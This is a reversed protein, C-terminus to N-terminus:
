QHSEQRTPHYGEPTLNRALRIGPHNRRDCGRGCGHSEIFCATHCAHAAYVTPCDAGDQRGHCEASGDGHVVITGTCRLTLASRPRTPDAAVWKEEYSKAGYHCQRRTHFRVDDAGLPNLLNPGPFVHTKQRQTIPERCAPCFGDPLEMEAVAAKTAKEAHVAQAHGACPALDGCVVCVAYHEPLVHWTLYRDHDVTMMHEIGGEPKTVIVRFPTARWPDPMGMAIWAERADDSWDGPILDEVRLVKWPEGSYGILVDVPPKRGYVTTCIAPKWDRGVRPAPRTM